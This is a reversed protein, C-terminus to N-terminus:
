ALVVAAMAHEATDTLSVAMERVGLRQALAQAAGHLILAPQGSGGTVVEIDCWQVTGIGCGLAKAMAEKAAFRSALSAARGGCDSIERATYVRGLFRSGWCQSLKAVRSVEVLDVGLRM